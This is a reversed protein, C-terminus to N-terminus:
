SSSRRAEGTKVVRVDTEWPMTVVDGGTTSIETWRVGEGEAPGIITISDEEVTVVGREEAVIDGVVDSGNAVTVVHISASAKSCAKEHCICFIGKSIEWIKISGM